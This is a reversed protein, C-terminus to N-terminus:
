ETIAPLIYNPILEQQIRFMVRDSYNGANFVVSLQLEPILMAIQGGNGGMFHARVTREEYPYDETYWLYGYDRGGDIKVEPTLLLRTNTSSLVRQTNWEGDNLLLQPFKLFDRPLWRIGGGMFPHGDPPVPVSYRRIDLPEAVFRDILQL